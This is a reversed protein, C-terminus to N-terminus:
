NDENERQANDSICHRFSDGFSYLNWNSIFRNDNKYSKTNSYENENKPLATERKQNQFPCIQARLFLCLKRGSFSFPCSFCGELIFHGKAAHSGNQNASCRVSGQVSRRLLLWILSGFSAFVL